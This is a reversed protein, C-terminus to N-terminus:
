ETVGLLRLLEGDLAQDLRYLTDVKVPIGREIRAVTHPSLSANEALRERSWFRRCRAEILADAITM